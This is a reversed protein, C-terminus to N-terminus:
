QTRCANRIDLQEIYLQSEVLCITGYFALILFIYPVRSPHTFDCVWSM